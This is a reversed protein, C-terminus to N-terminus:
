LRFEQLVKEALARAEADAQLVAELTDAPKPCHLAMTREVVQAIDPFAIREECFAEVAVENAANYVATQTGGQRISERALGLAPFAADNVPRFTLAGLKALNLAATVGPVREPYTLAVQIPMRMDPRSLQALMSGDTFEVLSHVISEPHIVVEVKSEPVGFLRCAEILELGKNMLTASDITVKRGMEWTPHRLADRWTVTELAKANLDRFAGGSATLIIRSIASEPSRELCQMVASHESDVPLIRVGCRKAEAMVVEGASVLVEKSALAITRGARIADLVPPIGATGVIACLVMDLEDSALRESVAGLGELPRCSPPLRISLEDLAGPASVAAWECDFEAALEALRAANGNAAVGVVRIRPHLHRVVDAASAGISGTAGLIAIRKQKM